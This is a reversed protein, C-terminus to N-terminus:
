FYFLSASIQKSSWIDVRGSFKLWHEIFVCLSDYERYCSLTVSAPMQTFSSSIHLPVSSRSVQAFSQLHSRLKVRRKTLSSPQGPMPAWSVASSKPARLALPAPVPVMEEMIRTKSMLCLSSSHVLLNIVLNSFSAITLPMQMFRIHLLCVNITMQQKWLLLHVATTPSCM